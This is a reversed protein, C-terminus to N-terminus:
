KSAHEGRVDRSEYRRIGRKGRRCHVLKAAATVTAASFSEAENPPMVVLRHQQCAQMTLM